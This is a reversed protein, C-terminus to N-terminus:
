WRGYYNGHSGSDLDRDPHRAQHCHFCLLVLNALEHNGGKSLHQLHHVHAGWLLRADAPRHWIYGRRRSSYLRGIAKGCDQCVGKDRLYVAVRRGEWDPPYGEASRHKPEEEHFRRLWKKRARRRNRAHETLGLSRLLPGMFIIAMVFVFTLLGEM